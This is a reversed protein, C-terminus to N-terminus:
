RTKKQAQLIKIPRYYFVAICITILTLVLAGVMKFNSVDEQVQHGQEVIEVTTSHIDMDGGHERCARNFAGSVKIIDGKHKYDGFFRIKKTDDLKMWIGMINTQDSINVWAYKGREMAEGLAEGQVVVKKGDFSKGNEVLENLAVTDQAKSVGFFLGIVLLLIILGSFFKQM